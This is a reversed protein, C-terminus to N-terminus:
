VNPRLLDGQAVTWRGHGDIRKFAFRIPSLENLGESHV